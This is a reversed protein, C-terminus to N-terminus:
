REQQFLQNLQMILKLQKDALNFIASKLNFLKNNPAKTNIEQVINM